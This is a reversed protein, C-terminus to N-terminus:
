IFEIMNSYLLFSFKRENCLVQVPWTQASIWDVDEDVKSTQITADWVTTPNASLILFVAEGKKLVETSGLISFDCKLIFANGINSILISRFEEKLFKIDKKNKM